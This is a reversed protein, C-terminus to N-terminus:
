LTVPNKHLMGPTIDKIYAYEGIGSEYVYVIDGIHFEKKM